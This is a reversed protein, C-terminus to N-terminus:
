AVAKSVAEALDTAHFPKGLLPFENTFPEGTNDYATVLLTRLGPRLLRAKVALETGMLGPMACDTILLDFPKGLSLQELAAQGSPVPVVSHGMEMLMEATGTRVQDDDDALLISLGKPQRIEFEAQEEQGPESAAPLWLIADTGKGPESELTLKGGSQAALGHVMSLGLGTGKGVEKTSYFPEIAHALVERTMGTGTDSVSLRVYRGSKLGNGAGAVTMGRAAITLVGGDPMADRSNVALNLLALELQNPDVKALPLDEEMEIRIKISSGLSRGVLENMGAVLERIDIVRSDLHQRRAFALLRQVLMRAREASQLASTILRLNRGDGALRRQLLDLGGLIPTLLNNFDHAIGGTFQGIAELKQSQRLAEEAHKRATIDLAESIIAALHEGEWLPRMKFDFWRAGAPLNILVEQQFPSGNVVAEVGARITEPMGSTGTFWPTDWFPRGLVDSLSAGIGRLSASNADFLTGDLSLLAKYQYSTEFIARMTAESKALAQAANKEETIDRGSAHISNGAPAAIWSVWRYSGDRNRCRCEFGQPVGEAAAALADSAEVLSDEHVFGFLNQGVIEEPMWGLSATWAPNAARITGDPEISALLDRASNWTRDREATARDAREELAATLELLASEAARRETVDTHVGVWERVEGAHDFVPIARISFTRWLGDRRRVRHEFEFKRREAVSAIWADITAQADEAHVANAWGYGRYEEFSQGTLASWGPQEGEMEGAPNNTWLIGQVADVAARFRQESEFLRERALREQSIDYSVILAPGPSGGEHGNASVSNRVWVTGGDPRVFREELEFASGSGAMLSAFLPGSVALDTEHVINSLRLKYLQAPTRGAIKCFRKNAFLFRGGADAIAIATAARAFINALTSGRQKLEAGTVESEWGGYKTFRFSNREM